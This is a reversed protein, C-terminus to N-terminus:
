SPMDPFIGFRRDLDLKGHNSIDLNKREVRVFAITEEVLVSSVMRMPTRTVSQGIIREFPIPAGERKAVKLFVDTLHDSWEPDPDGNTSIIKVSIKPTSPKSTQSMKASLAVMHITEFRVPAHLLMWECIKQCYAQYAEAEDLSYASFPLFAPCAYPTAPDLGLDVGLMKDLLAESKYGYGQEPLHLVPLNQIENAWARACSLIDSKISQRIEWTTGGEISFHSAELAAWGDEAKGSRVTIFPLSGSKRGMKIQLNLDPRDDSPRFRSSLRLAIPLVQFCDRESPDSTPTDESKLVLASQDSFVATIIEPQGPQVDNMLLVPIPSADIDSNQNVIHDRWVRLGHHALDNETNSEWWARLAVSALQNSLTQVPTLLSKKLAADPTPTAIKLTKYM